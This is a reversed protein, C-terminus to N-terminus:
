PKDSGDTTTISGTTFQNWDAIRAILAHAVAATPAHRHREAFKQVASKLPQSIRGDIPGTYLGSQHLLSQLRRIDDRSSLRTKSDLATIAAPIPSAAIATNAIPQSPPATKSQGTPAFPRRLVYTGVNIAVVEPGRDTDVLMPSGSSGGGTDCDHFLISAANKFDRTATSAAESDERSIPQRCGNDQMLRANANANANATDTDTDAHVAVQYIKGAAAATDIDHRSMRSIALSNGACIPAALRAVAWDSAASIPPNIDVAHTGAAIHDAATSLDEAALRASQATKRDTGLRFVIKKLNPATASTATGFLCHSATAIKDPAVCFATCFSGTDTASLTGISQKLIFHAKELPRRNDQGFVAAAANGATLLAAAACFLASRSFPKLWRRPRDSNRHM